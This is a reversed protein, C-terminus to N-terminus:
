DRIHLGNLRQLQFVHRMDKQQVTVRRGHIASLLTQEFINVLYAETAEQLAGLAGEQIRWDTHGLDQLIERILREFPLKPMLLETNLQYQRIERLALTGPKTRRAVKVTGTTRATNNRAAAKRANAKRKKEAEIQRASTRTPAASPKERPAKAAQQAKKPPM